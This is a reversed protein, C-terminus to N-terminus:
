RACVNPRPWFGKQVNTCAAPKCNPPHFGFNTAWCAPTMQTTNAHHILRPDGNRAQAALPALSVALALVPLLKTSIFM